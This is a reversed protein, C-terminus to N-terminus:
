RKGTPIRSDRTDNYKALLYNVKRQYKPHDILNFEEHEWINKNLDFLAVPTRTKDSRDKKDFQIILKWGDEIIMCAKQSGGQLMVYPHTKANKEQKLVPLLNYSDIAAGEKIEQKAISAITAMIDLGIVPQKSQTNAKIVGPWSVIFPVRSGGEYYDNKCGRYIDSPEHRANWTDGDVHLGGNDSTFIFVTNEYIGQKKLEDIMMGMQVDLEKIMDMHNSPTTGAIKVGNLEKPASHPTHVAQSCYYMFFPKDGKAKSAIYDVAKHAILPGINTPNWHSDGLGEKKEMALGLREMHGTDILSILSEQHLPFWQDNEYALYPENQIGSPLTFNYDFGNQSPGGDAIESLDVHLNKKGKGKLLQYIKDPNKKDRFSTGLHWKGIFATHYDAQKMLRGLTLTEPTFVSPAYGSWVGWPLPSRYNHNGTMIAYRSTACLAAPAHANTFIMGGSALKDMNPTELKIDPNHLRRYHSVDGVGLDDALVVIINPKDKSQALSVAYLCVLFNALFLLKKM